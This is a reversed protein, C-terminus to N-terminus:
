PRGPGMTALEKLAVNVRHVNPSRPFRHLFERLVLRAENYKVDEVLARGLSIYAGEFAPDKSIASRFQESAQRVEGQAHFLTGLNYSIQPNKPDLEAARRLSLLDEYRGLRLQIAGLNGVTRASERDM